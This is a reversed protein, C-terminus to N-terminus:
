ELENMMVSVSTNHMLTMGFSIVLLTLGLVIPVMIISFLAKGPNM